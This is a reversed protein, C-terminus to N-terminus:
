KKVAATNTPCNNRISLNCFLIEYYNIYMLIHEISILKNDKQNGVFKLISTCKADINKPRYRWTPKRASSDCLENVYKIYKTYTKMM